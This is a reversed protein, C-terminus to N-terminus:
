NKTKKERKMEFLMELDERTLEKLLGSESTILKDSLQKKRKQLLLIKEEVSNKIIYKYVFVHKDQGIRHARDTAQQEVAPNWWPDLHIVYDAATLNVGIGGAKLSILFASIKSNKQFNNIRQVRNRVKGDLYEYRWGRSEFLKRVIALFRVFQSFILVKHGMSIIGELMDDLLQIKGSEQLDTDKVLIAPHCALQRLYTLAELIKLRNRTIGSSDVERFIENRYFQLWQQYIEGQKATMEIFHVVETVPPLEKEVEEKKRRLLFPYILKKLVDIKEEQEAPPVDLFRKEFQQRSGLLGPNLFNIQAWLDIMSNEIPTGTLALKQPVKIKNVARYTKTEPNKIKQSEDAILYSFEQQALKIEDQLVIGYSCLIVDYQSFKEILKHREVRGGYYVLVKLDPGFKQFEQLWNFLITLPMIILAPHKLRGREKLRLLLAIVQVTKGLGMDDALIGGFHFENLFCLWDLGFKQYVRLEGHFRKPVKVGEIKHFKEFNKLLVRTHEDLTLDQALAELEKIVVIGAAPLRISGSGRSIDMLVSFQQIKQRIEEPIYIQSGDILKVYRKGSQVQRLLGPIQLAKNGLFLGYKLDLMDHRFRVKLKLRPKQRHVRYRNLNEEGVVEFGAKKLAPIVVRMWDLAYYDSAIHWKGASYILGHEELFARAENEADFDRRIIFLREKESVLSRDTPTHIPFEYDGYRFTVDIQLHANEEELTIRKQTIPFSFQEIHEVLNQWDLVQLIHPLYIRIFYEIDSSPILLREQVRFYNYWFVAPLDSSIKYLVDGYLLYMPNSSLITTPKDIDIITDGLNLSPQLLYGQKKEVLRLVIKTEATYFSLKTAEREGAEKKLVRSNELWELLFGVPQAYNFIQRANLASAQLYFLANLEDQTINVKSNDIVELSLRVDRGTSGDLRTYSAYPIVEWNGPRLELVFYPQYVGVKSEFTKPQPVKKLLGVLQEIKNRWVM